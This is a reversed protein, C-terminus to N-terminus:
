WWNWEESVHRSSAYTIHRCIYQLGGTLLFLESCVLHFYWMNRHRWGALPVAVELEGSLECGVYLRSFFLLSLHLPLSGQSFFCISMKSYPIVWKTWDNLQEQGSALKPDAGQIGSLTQLRPVPARLWLMPVTAAQPCFLQPTFPVSLADQGDPPALLLQEQRAVTGVCPWKLFNTIQSSDRQQSSRAQLVNNPSSQILELAFARRQSKSHCSFFGTKHSKIEHAYDWDFCDSICDLCNTKKNKRIRVHSCLLGIVKRDSRRRGPLFFYSCCWVIASKTGIHLCGISVLCGTVPFMELFKVHTKIVAPDTKKM